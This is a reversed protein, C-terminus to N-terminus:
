VTGAPLVSVAQARLGTPDESRQLQRSIRHDVLGHCGKHCVADHQPRQGRERQDQQGGIQQEVAPLNKPRDILQDARHFTHLLIGPVPNVGGAKRVIVVIKIDLEVMHDVMNLLQGRLQILFFVPYLLRLELLQLHLDIGMEKVIRQVHDVPNRLALAVLANRPEAQVQAVIVAVDGLHRLLDNRQPILDPMHGIIQLNLPDPELGPDPDLDSRQRLLDGPLHDRGQDNLGDDFVGELVPYPIQLLVPQDAEAVLHLIREEPHDHGVVAAFHRLLAHPVEPRM